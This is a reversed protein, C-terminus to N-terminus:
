YNQLFGNIRFRLDKSFSIPDYIQNQLGTIKEFGTSANNEIRVMVVVMPETLNYAQVYDYELDTQYNVVYFSYKNLYYQNYVEKIMEMAQPCNDCQESNYFLYIISKPYKPYAENFYGQLSQNPNYEGEYNLEQSNVSFSFFLGLLLILKYM